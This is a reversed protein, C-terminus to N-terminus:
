SLNKFNQKIYVCQWKFICVCIHVFGFICTCWRLQGILGQLSSENKSMSWYIFWRSVRKTSVRPSTTATPRPAVPTAPPSQTGTWFVQCQLVARGLVAWQAPPGPVPATRLFLFHLCICWYLIPYLLKLDSIFIGRNQMKGILIYKHRKCNINDANCNSHFQIKKKKKKFERSWLSHFCNEQM